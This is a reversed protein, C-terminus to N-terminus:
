AHTSEHVVSGALLAPLLDRVRRDHRVGIGDHLDVRHCDAPGIQVDQLSVYRRYGVAPNEAMLRDAGDGLDARPDCVDVWAIPYEYGADGCAAPAAVAPLALVALAEAATAPDEPM